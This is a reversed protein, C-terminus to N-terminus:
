GGVTQAIPTVVWLIDGSAIPFDGQGRGPRYSLDWARTARNYWWVITVPTGDFLDAVTGVAGAPVTFLNGGERLALRFAGSEAPPTDIGLPVTLFLTQAQPTAIWLVDGAEIPFDEAGTSPEYVVWGREATHAGVSTVNSGAALDAATTSVGVPVGYFDGGARLPLAGSSPASPEAAARTVTVTVVQPPVGDPPRVEVRIVNPGPDLPLATGNAVSRTGKRIIVTDGPDRLTATLVTEALGAPVRATYDAGSEAFVPVLPAGHLELDRLRCLPLGLSFLGKAPRWGSLSHPVCGRLPNERLQIAELKSLARITAPIPGQLQNRALNLEQLHVLNGLAAPIGGSLQNDSLYLRVLRTLQGLTAPIPGQLQNDSLGLVRLNALTGLEAPIAGSLENGRLDLRELNALRGLAAPIPGSLQNSSLLLEELTTLNGLTAPVAGSLQNLALDLERLKTLSGLEAPIPGSLENWGLDLAELHALRGLATPIPGSLQNIVLDLERLNTLSGLEMPIPGSLENWGLYLRELNALRGLATPIPGSLQNERLLLERLNALNGLAVPIEGSLQNATLGLGVLHALRGLETPIPGHLQNAAFDLVQLYALDGLAAPLSGTLNNEILVLGIVRNDANTTVGYWTSVPAASGWNTSTRWTPGNTAAYLALLAARDTTASDRSEQAFRRLPAPAPAAARPQQSAPPEMAPPVPPISPIEPAAAAPPADSDSSGNCATLSSALALVLGAALLPALRWRVGHMVM